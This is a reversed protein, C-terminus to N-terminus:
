FHVLFTSLYLCVMIELRNKMILLILKNINERKTNSVIVVVHRMKKLFTFSNESLDGTNCFISHTIMGFFM